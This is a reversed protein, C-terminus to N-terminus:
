VISHYYEYLQGLIAPDGGPLLEVVIRELEEGLTGAEPPLAEMQDARLDFDEPPAGGPFLANLARILRAAHVAGIEDLAAAIKPAYPGSPNFYFQSTGGNSVQNILYGVLFLVRNKRGLAELGHKTGYYYVHWWKNEYWKVPDIPDDSLFAPSEVDVLEPEIVVESLGRSVLFAFIEVQQFLKASAVANRAPNGEVIEPDAGRGLLLEVMDLHGSAVAEHLPTSGHNEARRDVPVGRDLLWRAADIAGESAAAGLPTQISTVSHVDIGAAILIPLLDVRNNEAAYELMHPGHEALLDAHEVLRQRVQSATGERIATMTEQIPTVM